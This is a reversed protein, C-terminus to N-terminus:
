IRQPCLQAQWSLFFDLRNLFDIGHEECYHETACVIMEHAVLFEPIQGANRSRLRENGVRLDYWTLYFLYADGLTEGPMSHHKKTDEHLSCEFGLSRVEGLLRKLNSISKRTHRRLLDADIHINDPLGEPCGYRLLKIVAEREDDTMRRLAQFFSLAHFYAEAQAKDDGVIGLRQYLRDLTPPFYNNREQKGLKESILDCLQSPSTENLDIYGVTDLLGPIRSQDFRAPLIYEQKEAIARAQASQREHNPWVKGAYEESVFIVCYMCMHEYIESLHAYLDKGWLTGKEYDDYFVRIGRANLDKAVQEVYERQEGAFSLGVDYEFYRETM